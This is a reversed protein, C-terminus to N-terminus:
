THPYKSNCKKKINHINNNSFNRVTISFNQIVCTKKITKVRSQKTSPRVLVPIFHKTCTDQWLLAVTGNPELRQGMLALIGHAFFKQFDWFLLRLDTPSREKLKMAEATQFETGALKLFGGGKKSKM